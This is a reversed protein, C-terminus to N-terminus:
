ELEVELEEETGPQSCGTGPSLGARRLFDHQRRQHGPGHHVQWEQDRRDAPDTGTDRHGFRGREKARCDARCRPRYCLRDQGGPIRQRPARQRRVGMATWQEFDLPDGQGGAGHRDCGAPVGGHQLAAARHRVEIREGILSHIDVPKLVTAGSLAETWIHGAALLFIDSASAVGTGQVEFRQRLIRAADANAEEQLQDGYGPYLVLLLATPFWLRNRM